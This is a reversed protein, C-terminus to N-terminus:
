YFAGISFDATGAVPSMRFLTAVQGDASRSVFEERVIPVVAGLRLGLWFPGGLHASGQASVLAFVVPRQSSETQGFGVGQAAVVGAAAGACGLLLLGRGSLLRPCERGHLELMSFSAHAEGPPATDSPRWLTGGLQFTLGGLTQVGDLTAGWAVGPLLGAGFIVAAEVGLRSDRDTRPPGPKPPEPPAEVPSAVVVAPPAPRPPGSPEASLLLKPDIILALMLTLPQELADCTVEDSVIDRQGLVGGNMDTLVLEAHWGPVNERKEVYGEILVNAASTPVWAPHGLRAEVARALAGAGVCSEAGPRRAWGLSYTASETSAASRRAGVLCAVLALFAAAARM